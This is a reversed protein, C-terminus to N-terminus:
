LTYIYLLLFDFRDVYIKKTWKECTDFKNLRVVVLQQKTKALQSVDRITSKRRKKHRSKVRLLM